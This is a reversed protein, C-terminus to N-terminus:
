AAADVARRLAGDPPRVYRQTTAVSAHGLLQSVSILDRDGAYAASAFRHRLSHLTWGPPLLRSAVIGVTQPSLHGGVAGPFLWGEVSGAMRQRVSWALWQPLPVMRDKGGKGHVVLSWGALDEFLDDRHVRAIEARRLGAHAALQLILREREGAAALAQRYVPEPTPRPLPPEPKVSPLAAAPSVDCRGTAVAWSWFSRLSAYVSRRTERRWDEGGVWGVLQAETVSWPGGRLARAARRLHDSRTRITEESRGGARLWGCWDSIPARWAAPVQKARPDTSMPTVTRGRSM